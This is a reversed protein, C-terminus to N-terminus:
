AEEAEGERRAEVEEESAQRVSIVKLDFTVQQGALPHNADLVIAEPSIEVVRMEMEEGPKEEGSGDDESLVVSIWDGPVIEADEPFETRPVSVIGDPNYEGYAEGAALTVEILAGEEVGDLQEELGPPIEENGHLYTLLNGDKSAEVVEGEGNRLEYELEVICGTRIKM